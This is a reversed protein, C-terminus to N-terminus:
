LGALQTDSGGGTGPPRAFLGAATDLIIWGNALTITDVVAGTLLWAAGSWFYMKMTDLCIAIDGTNVGAAPRDAAEVDCIYINRALASPFGTYKFTTCAM